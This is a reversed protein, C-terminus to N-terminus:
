PGSRDQEDGFVLMNRAKRPRVMMAVRMGIRPQAVDLVGVFRPGPAGDLEILAVTFPLADALETLFAHRVTTFTFVAGTGALERWEYGAGPCCPGTPTPYWQWRGCGGCRPLLLRGEDIGHWFTAAHENDLPLPVATLADIM